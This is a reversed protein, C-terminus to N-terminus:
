AAKKVHTDIYGHLDISKIGGTYCEGKQDRYFAAIAKGCLTTITSSNNSARAGNRGTKNALVAETLAQVPDRNRGNKIGDGNFYREWFPMAQEGYKYVTLIMAALIASTFVTHNFMSKDIIRLSPIFQEIDVYVNFSGSRKGSCIAVATSLSGKKFLHSKPDFGHLRFAGFIRDAAGEAATPTDFQKYLDEVDKTTKVQYMDVNVVSGPRALSGDNWLFARTHGDLKYVQGSATRAASVRSHVASSNKLHNNRAKKAHLETDRQIPCDMVNIWQDISMIEQTLIAM